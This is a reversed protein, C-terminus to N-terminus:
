PCYALRPRIPSVELRIALSSLYLGKNPTYHHGDCPHDFPRLDTARISLRTLVSVRLVQDPYHRRLFLIERHKWDFMGPSPEARAERQTKKGQRYRECLLRDFFNDYRGVIAFPCGRFQRGYDRDEILLRDILEGHLMELLQGLEHGVQVPGAVTVPRTIELNTADALKRLVLARWIWGNPENDVIDIEATNAGDRRQEIDFLDFHKAPRLARAVAGIREGPEDVHM